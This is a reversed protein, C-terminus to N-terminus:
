NSCKNMYDALGERDFVDGNDTKKGLSFFYDKLLDEYLKKRKEIVESSSKPRTDPILYSDYWNSM